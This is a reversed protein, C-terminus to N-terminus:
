IGQMARDYAEESNDKGVLNWWGEKGEILVEDDLTYGSDEIYKKFHEEWVEVIDTVGQLKPNNHVQEIIQKASYRKKM